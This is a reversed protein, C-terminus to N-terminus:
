DFFRKKIVCIHPWISRWSRRRNLPSSICSWHRSPIGFVILYHLLVQLPQSSVDWIHSNPLDRSTVLAMSHAHRLRDTSQKTPYGSCNHTIRLMMWSAIKYFSHAEYKQSKPGQVYVKQLFSKITIYMYVSEVPKDQTTNYM